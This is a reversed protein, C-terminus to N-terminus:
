IEGKDSCSSSIFKQNSDSDRIKEFARLEENQKMKKEKVEKKM